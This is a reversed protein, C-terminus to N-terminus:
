RAVVWAADRADLARLLNREAREKTLGFAAWVCGHDNSYWALWRRVGGGICRKTEIHIM